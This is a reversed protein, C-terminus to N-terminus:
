EPILSGEPFVNDEEPSNVELEKPIEVLDRCPTCWNGLTGVQPM